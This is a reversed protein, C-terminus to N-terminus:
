TVKGKILKKGGVGRTRKEETETIYRLVECSVGFGFILGPGFGVSTKINQM